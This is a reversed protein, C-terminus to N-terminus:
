QAKELAKLLKDAYAVAKIALANPRDPSEGGNFDQVYQNALMGQMAAMAFQERKTLGVGLTPCIGIGECWLTYDQPMAPMDGNKIQKEM